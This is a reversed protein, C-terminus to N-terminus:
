AAARFLSQVLAKHKRGSTLSFPEHQIGLCINVRLYDAVSKKPCYTKPQYPSFKQLLSTFIDAAADYFSM